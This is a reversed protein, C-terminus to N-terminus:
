HLETTHIKQIVNNTKDQIYIHNTTLIKTPQLIDTTDSHTTQQNYTYYM